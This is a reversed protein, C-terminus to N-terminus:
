LQDGTESEVTVSLRSVNLLQEFLTVVRYTNGPTAITNM